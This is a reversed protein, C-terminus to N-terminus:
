QLTVGLTLRLHRGPMPYFAIVEYSADLANLLEAKWTTAVGQLAAGATIAVDVVGHAPLAVTNSEDYYRQGLVRTTLSADLWTAPAVAVTLAGSWEPVYILQKGTTADGAFSANIKRASIWQGNARVAFREWQLQLQAEVGTSRVHQVNRPTWYLGSSPAWVIKDTVDHHFVTLEAVASGEAATHVLGADFSTSYEPRLAPNGGERWYLQNFTPMAFARAVRARFALRGPLLGFHLGLSPSFQTTSGDQTDREVADGILDLRLAPYLRLPMGALLLHLDGSAFLAGQSRRPHQPLDDSRLDETSAELGALARHGGDFEQEFLAGAFLQSQDYRSHLTEGGIRYDPDTYEQRALRLGASARVQSRATLQADLQATVLAHRDGQRARGQVPSFVAGPTGADIHSLDSRLTLAADRLLLTGGASLARRQMSANQRRLEEGGWSPTFAFDNSREEYRFDAWARGAAGQTGTALSAQRWGFAGYGLGAALPPRRRATVINVVGGLASGGYLSALGGRVIEVRDVSELPLQGVDVLANQAGNLRMGDLLVMTYEAGLGRLSALQLSGAGGYDRISAGSTLSLLDSLSRAPLSAIERAAYVDVAAPADRLATPLRTASVTVADLAFFLTDDDGRRM